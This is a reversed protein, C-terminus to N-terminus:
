SEPECRAVAARVCDILGADHVSDFDTTGWRRLVERCAALLADRQAQLMDVLEWCNDDSM